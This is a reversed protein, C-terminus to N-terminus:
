EESAPLPKPSNASRQESTPVRDGFTKRAQHRNHAACLVRLNAAESEGGLSWPKIHDIQLNHTSSCLRGTQGVFTCQQGDRLMVEDRIPRPIHRSRPNKTAPSKAAPTKAALNKAALKNATAREAPTKEAKTM